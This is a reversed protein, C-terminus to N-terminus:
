SASQAIIKALQRPDLSKNEAQQIMPELEAMNAESLEIGMEKCAVILHSRYERKASEIQVSNTESFDLM